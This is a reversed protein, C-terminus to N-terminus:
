CHILTLLHPNPHINPRPKTRVARVKYAGHISPYETSVGDIVGDLVCKERRGGGQLHGRHVSRIYETCPGDKSWGFKINQILFFHPLYWGGMQPAPVKGM